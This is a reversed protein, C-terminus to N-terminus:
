ARHGDETSVLLAGGGPAFTRATLSEANSARYTQEIGKDDIRWAALTGRVMSSPVTYYALLSPFLTGAFERRLPNWVLGALAQVEDGRPGIRAQYDDLESASTPARAVRHGTALDWAIVREEAFHGGSMFTSFSTGGVAALVKAGPSFSLARLTGVEALPWNAVAAADNGETRVVEIREGQSMRALLRGDASLAMPAAFPLKDERLVRGDSGALLTIGADTAVAVVSGDDAFALPLRWGSIAATPPPTVPSVRRTWAVNGAVTDVLRLEGAATAILLRGGTADFRHEGWPGRHRLAPGEPTAEFLLLQTDSPTGITFPTKDASAAVVIFRGTTSTEIALVSGDIIQHLPMALSIFADFAPVKADAASPAAVPAIPAPVSAPM